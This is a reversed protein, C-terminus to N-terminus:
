ITYDFSRNFEHMFDILIQPQSNIGAVYDYAGAAYTGSVTEQGPMIFLNGADAATAGYAFLGYRLSSFDVTSALEEAFSVATETPEIEPTNKEEDNLVNKQSPQRNLKEEARTESVFKQIAFSAQPELYSVACGNLPLGKFNEPQAIETTEPRLAAAKARIHSVSKSIEATLGSFDPSLSNLSASIM